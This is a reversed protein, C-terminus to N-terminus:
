LVHSHCIHLCVYTYCVFIVQYVSEGDVVVQNVHTGELFKRMNNWVVRKLQPLLGRDILWTIELSSRELKHLILVFERLQLNLSLDLRYQEVNYLTLETVPEKIRYKIEAFEKPVKYSKKGCFTLFDTAKTEQWFLKLDSVYTKMRLKLEPSGHENVLVELLTYNFYDWYTNLLLFLEKVDTVESLKKINETIYTAHNSKIDVPLLTLDYQLDEMSIEVDKRLEKMTDKVLTRFRETFLTVSENIKGIIIMAMM